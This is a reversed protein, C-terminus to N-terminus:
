RPSVTRLQDPARGLAETYMKAIFQSPVINQAEAKSLHGVIIALLLFCLVSPFRSNSPPCSICM